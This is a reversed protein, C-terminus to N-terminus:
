PAVKAGFGCMRGEGEPPPECKSRHQPAHAGVAARQCRCYAARVEHRLRSSIMSKWSTRVQVIRVLQSMHQLQRGVRAVLAAPRKQAWSPEARSHSPLLNPARIKGATTGHGISALASPPAQMTTLPRHQVNSQCTNSSPASCGIRISTLMTVNALYLAASAREHTHAIEVIGKDPCQSARTHNDSNPPPQSHLTLGRATCRM